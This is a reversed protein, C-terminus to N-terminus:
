SMTRYGDLSVHLLKFSTLGHMRYANSVNKKKPPHCTGHLIRDGGYYTAIGVVILHLVLILAAIGKQLPSLASIRQRADHLFRTVDM